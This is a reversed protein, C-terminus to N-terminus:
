KEDYLRKLEINLRNIEDLYSQKKVVDNELRLLLNLREIEQKPTNVYEAESDSMM